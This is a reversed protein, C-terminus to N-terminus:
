ELIITKQNRSYHDWDNSSSISTVFLQLNFENLVDILGGLHQKDLEAAVDDILLICVKGTLSEFLITQALILTTVLIKQQGRSLHDAVAKGNLYIKLDSRHPGSTTYGRNRDLDKSSQLAELLSVEKSWGPEYEFGYEGPKILLSLYEPLFQALLSVYDMRFRNIKEGSNALAENWSDFSSHFRKDKLAANRQKLIQRYRVWNSYFDQEVHFVGWDLFQRRFIPGGEILRHSDPQIIQLPLVEALDAVRNINENNIKIKQKNFSKQIGIPIVRQGATVKAFVSASSQETQILKNTNSTRFSRARSLYFLSELLSTKGTANAGYILNLNQSPSLEFSSFNRFHSIKFYEIPM